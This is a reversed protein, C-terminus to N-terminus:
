PTRAAATAVRRDPGSVTVVLLRRHLEHGDLTETAELDEVLDDLVARHEELAASAREEALRLEADVAADFRERVEAGLVADPPADGLHGGTSPALLRRLPLGDTLAHAGVLQRALETARTLASEGLSSGAGLVRREALTGALLAALDDRLQDRDRLAEDGGVGALAVSRGRPV